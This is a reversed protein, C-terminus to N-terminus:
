GMLRRIMKLKWEKYPAYRVSIDFLTSKRLVSKAHTFTTFNSQGHYSGMGSAGVGGFPLTPGVMHMVVDNVCVGGSSTRGVVQEIAGSDESFVYLALPKERANVFEIAAEVNEIEVIPLIPGFIEEQMAADGSTADIMTPEMFLTARDSRGGHLVKAGDLLGALRDFNKENIIRCYDGSKEVEDGYSDRLVRKLEEVLRAKIARAVLVYDPAVCTQGANLCKGWALRRAAVKVNADALVIAPSKGGLELVVPTLNEAAKQMVIKGVRASGTFFILDFKKELLANTEAVGGEVVAILENDLYKPVLRAILEATNVTLESPKVIAANGGCIAGVLPAFVLQVPYNWAGIVLALGFPERLIESRGLQNFMPTAVREPRMWEALHALAYEIESIVFGIETVATEFPGKRFDKWLAENIAAEDEKLLAKLAQLQARRWELDRPNKRLGARLRGYMEELKAAFDASNATVDAIAPRSGLGLLNGWIYELFSRIVLKRAGGEVFKKWERAFYFPRGFAAV